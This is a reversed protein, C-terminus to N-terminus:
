LKYTTVVVEYLTIVNVNVIGIVIYNFGKITAFRLNIGIPLLLGYFSRSFGGIPNLLSQFLERLNSM